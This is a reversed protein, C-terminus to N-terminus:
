GQAGDFSSQQDNGLFMKCNKEKWQGTSIGKVPFIRDGDGSALITEM